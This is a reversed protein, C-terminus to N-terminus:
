TSIAAQQGKSRESRWVSITPIGSPLYVKGRNKEGMRSGKGVGFTFLQIEQLYIRRNGTEQEWRRAKGLEFAFLKIEQLYIRRNGTEAGVRLAM